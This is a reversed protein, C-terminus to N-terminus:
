SIFRFFSFPFHFGFLIFNFLSFIYIQSERLIASSPSFLLQKKRPMLLISPFNTSKYLVNLERVTECFIMWESVDFKPM